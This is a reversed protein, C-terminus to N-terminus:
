NSEETSETNESNDSQDLTSEAGEAQNREPEPTADAQETELDDTNDEATTEDSEEKTTETTEVETADSESVSADTEEPPQELNDADGSDEPDGPEPQPATAESNIQIQRTPEQYSRNTASRKIAKGSFEAEDYIIIKVTRDAGYIVANNINRFLLKLGRHLPQNEFL